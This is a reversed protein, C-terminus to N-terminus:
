DLNATVFRTADIGHPERSFLFVYMASRYLRTEASIRFPEVANATAGETRSIPIPNRSPVFKSIALSQQGWQSQLHKNQKDFLVLSVWLRSLTPLLDGFDVPSDVRYRFHHFSRNFCFPAALSHLHSSGRSTHSFQVVSPYSRRPHWHDSRGPAIESCSCRLALCGRATGGNTVDKSASPDVERLGPVPVPVPINSYTRYPATHLSVQFCLFLAPTHLLSTCCFLVAVLHHGAAPTTEFLALLFLHFANSSPFFPLLGLHGLWLGVGGVVALSPLCILRLLISPNWPQEVFGLM